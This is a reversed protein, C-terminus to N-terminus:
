DSDFIGQVARYDKFAVIVGFMPLYAFVLLLLLGPLAMLLLSGNKTFLRRFNAMRGTGADVKQVKTKTKEALPQQM